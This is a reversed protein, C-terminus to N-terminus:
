PVDAAFSGGNGNDTADSGANGLDTLTPLTDGDGCRYFRQLNSSSSYGGSDKTVDFPNGSNYIASVETPSLKSSWVAVEDINGPFFAGLTTKERAGIVFTEASLDRITTCSNTSSAKLSVASGNKYIKVKDTAGAQTGDFTVAVHMWGLSPEFSGDVSEVQTKNNSSDHFLARIGDDPLNLSAFWIAFGKNGDLNGQAILTQYNQNDIGKFWCSMSWYQTNGDGSAGSATACQDVGDIQYSYTNTLPDPGCPEATWGGVLFYSGSWKNAM